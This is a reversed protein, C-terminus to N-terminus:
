DPVIYTWPQPSDWSACSPDLGCPTPKQPPGLPYLIPGPCPPTEQSMPHPEPYKSRGQSLTNTTGMHMNPPHPTSLLPPLLGQPRVTSHEPYLVEQPLCEHSQPLHDPGLPSAQLSGERSDCGTAPHPPDWVMDRAVGGVPGRGSCGRCSPVSAVSSLMLRPARAGTKVGEGARARDKDGLQCLVEPGLPTGPFRHPVMKSSASSSLLQRTLAWTGATTHCPSRPGGPAPPQQPRPHPLM